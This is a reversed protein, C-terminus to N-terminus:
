HGEHSRTKRRLLRTLRTVMQSSNMWEAGHRSFAVAGGGFEGVRPKSCTSAWEMAFIDNEDLELMVRAVEVAAEIDLSEDHAIWLQGSEVEWRFGLYGCGNRRCSSLREQVMTLQSPTMGLVTKAVEEGGCAVLITEDDDEFWKCIASMRARALAADAVPIEFSSETYNNAM